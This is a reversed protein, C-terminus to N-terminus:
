KSGILATIEKESDLAVGFRRQMWDAITKRYKPIGKAQPYRHTNPHNKVTDALRDVIVNPTPQDPNGMGLDIVDLKKAYAEKKLQTIRTFLYPPLHNLRNSFEPM